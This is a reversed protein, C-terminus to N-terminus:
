EFGPQWGPLLRAKKKARWEDLKEKDM